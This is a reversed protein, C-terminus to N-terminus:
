CYNNDGSFVYCKAHLFQSDGNENTKYLRVKIKSDEEDEKCYDLLLKISEEYEEIVEISSLDRLIYDSPFKGKGIPNKLLEARVVPDTGILFKVTTDSRHLFDKLEKCILSLAKIDWYGTAVMLESCDNEALCTKIINVVKLQESSNDLLTNSLNAM